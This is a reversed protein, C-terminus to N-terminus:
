SLWELIENLESETREMQVERWNTLHHTGAGGGLDLLRPRSREYFAAAGRTRPTPPLQVEHV